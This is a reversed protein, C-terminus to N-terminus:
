KRVNTSKGHKKREDIIDFLADALTYLFPNIASNIPLVFTVIWTYITPTVIYRGSQVLISLIIIPIWCAMDTLVLGGMRIAMKLERKQNRGLGANKATQVSTIFIIGYCIAVIIFCLLNLATFVAIGFYMGPARDIEVDYSIILDEYCSPYLSYIEVYHDKKESVISRSLPLGTCVESVDYLDPNINPIFTSSISLALAIVWFVFVLVRSSRTQIRYRSFTFRIGMLRDISILTVFFVSAESSLFSLTGAVKCPISVRWAESPFYNRYYLDASAIMVMYIGMLMDSCSLSSIFMRQVKNGEQRRLQYIFVSINCVVSFLGLMWMFVRQSLNGLLRGCTLFQSKGVSFLCIATRIFCCSAANKVVITTDNNFGVFSDDNIFYLNNGRLDIVYPFVTGAFLHWSDFNDILNDALDLHKLSPMNQFMRAKFVSLKNRSLYIYQLEKFILKSSMEITKLSNKSLDIMNLNGLSEFHSSELSVIRNNQLDIFRMRTLGQFLQHDIDVIRNDNLYITELYTTERFLPSPVKSIHNHGLYLFSLAILDKFQGPDLNSIINYGLQLIQLNKLGALQDPHIESINNHNLYLRDMDYLNRFLQSHLNSISIRDLNLLLLKTQSTFQSPNLKTIYNNALSLYKLELLGTFQGSHIESINNRRVDLLILNTLGKFQEPHIESIKNHELYLDELNTLGTFQGPHLISINNFSLYLEELTTLGSFTDQKIETIKNHDLFLQTLNISSSLKSSVFGSINNSALDLRELRLLGTFQGKMKVINNNDIFLWKLKSLGEFQGQHIESIRNDSLFLNQLNILSRFAEPHINDIINKELDLWYLNDLGKLDKSGIEAIVNGRLILHLKETDTLEGFAGQEFKCIGANQLIYITVHSSSADTDAIYDVQRTYSQSPCTINVYGGALSCACEIQCRFSFVCAKEGIIWYAHSGLHDESYNFHNITSERCTISTADALHMLMLLVVVLCALFALSDGRGPGDVEM